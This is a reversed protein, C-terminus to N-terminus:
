EKLRKRVINAMRALFEGNTPQGKDARVINGFYHNLTEYDSRNWTVEIVHRIAREVRSATTNFKKALEPYLGATIKNLCERNEVVMKVGEVVYPHGILHDPAGLEVLIDITVDEPDKSVPRLGYVSERLAERLAERAKERSTETDALVFDILNNVMLETSRM